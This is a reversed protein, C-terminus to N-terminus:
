ADDVEELPVLRGPLLELWVQDGATLRRHRNTRIRL